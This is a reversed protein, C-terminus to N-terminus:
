KINEFITLRDKGFYQCIYNKSYLHVDSSTKKEIDPLFDKLKYFDDDPKITNSKSSISINTYPFSVGKLDYEKSIYFQIDEFLPIRSYLYSIEPSLAIYYPYINKGFRFGIDLFQSIWDKKEKISLDKKEKIADIYNSQNDREPYTDQPDLLYLEKEEDIIWIKSKLPFITTIKKIIDEFADYGKEIEESTDIKQTFIWEDGLFKWYLMATENNITILYNKIDSDIRQIDRSWNSEKRM